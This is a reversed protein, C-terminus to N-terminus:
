SNLACGFNQLNPWDSIHKSNINLIYLLFNHQYLENTGVECLTCIDRMFYKHENQM